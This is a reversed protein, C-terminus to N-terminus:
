WFPSYGRRSSGGYGLFYDGRDTPNSFPGGSYGGMGMGADGYGTGRSMGYGGAGSHGRGYPQVPRSMMGRDYGMGGGRSSMPQRRSFDGSTYDGQGYDDYGRGYGRGSGMGGGERAMYTRSRWDNGGMGRSAGYGGTPGGYGGGRNGYAQDEWSPNHRMRDRYVESGGSLYRQQDQYDRGYGRM